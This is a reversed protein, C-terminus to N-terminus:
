EVGFSACILIFGVLATFTLHLNRLMYYLSFWKKSKVKVGGRCGSHYYLSYMEYYPLSNEDKGM